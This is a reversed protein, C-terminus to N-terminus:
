SSQTKGLLSLSTLIDEKKILPAKQSRLETNKKLWKDLKKDKFKMLDRKGKLIIVSDCINEFQMIDDKDFVHLM